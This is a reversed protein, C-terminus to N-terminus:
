ALLELADLASVFHRRREEREGPGPLHEQHFAIVTREYSPM